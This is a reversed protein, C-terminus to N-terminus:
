ALAEELGKLKNWLNEPLFAAIEETMPVPEAAGANAVMADVLKKNVAGEAQQIQFTLMTAVTLKDKEFLGRRLYDFLTSTIFEKLKLCRKAIIEPTMQSLAEAEKQKALLGGIMGALDDESPMRAAKLMDNNWNFRETQIVTKALSKLRSLGKLLKKGGGGKLKEQAVQIGRQFIVVFANLSYMYYTHVKNLDNMLFFLLSGRSAVSRFAESTENIKANTKKGDELKENVELSVRKAEELGEILDRDETIDGEAAALQVLIQDELAALQVTFQNEQQVLAAKQSALDPRERRVVLSLLQDELGKLTVTFNVLTTEAQM